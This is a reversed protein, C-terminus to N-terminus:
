ARPRRPSSRRSSSSRTRRRRRSGRSLSASGTQEEIIHRWAAFTLVVRRGEPDVTELM